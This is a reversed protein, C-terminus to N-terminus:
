QLTPKLFYFIEEVSNKIKGATDFKMDAFSIITGAINVHLAWMIFQGATGGPLNDGFVMTGLITAALIRYLGYNFSAMATSPLGATKKKSIDFISKGIIKEADHSKIIQSYIALTSNLANFYKTRASKDVIFTLAVDKEVELFHKHVGIVSFWVVTFEILQEYEKKLEVPAQDRIKELNSKQNIETIEILHILRTEARNVRLLDDAVNMKDSLKKIITARESWLSQFMLLLKKHKLLLENEQKFERHLTLAM